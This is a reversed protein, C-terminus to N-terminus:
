LLGLIREKDRENFVFLMNRQEDEKWFDICIQVIELYIELDEAPLASLDEHVIVINTKEIWCFDRYLEALADWNKGFYDPFCLVKALENFLEEKNLVFSVLAVYADPSITYKSKISM